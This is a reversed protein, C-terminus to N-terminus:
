NNQEKVAGIPDVTVRVEPVLDLVLGLVCTGIDIYIYIYMTFIHVQFHPSMCSKFVHCNLFPAQLHEAQTWLTLIALQRSCSDTSKTSTLTYVWALVSDSITFM